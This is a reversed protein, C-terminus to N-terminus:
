RSSGEQPVSLGSFERKNARTRPATVPYSGPQYRSTRLRTAPDPDAQHSPHLPHADHRYWQGNRGNIGSSPSRPLIKRSAEIPVSLLLSPSLSLVSSWCHLLGPRDDGAAGRVLRGDILGKPLHIVCVPSTVASFWENYRGAIDNLSRVNATGIQQL